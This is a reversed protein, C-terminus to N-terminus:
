NFLGAIPPRGGLLEVGWAGLTGAAGGTLPAAVWKAASKEDTASGLLAGGVGAVLAVVRGVNKGRVQVNFTMGPILLAGAAAALMQGGQQLQEKPAKKLARNEEKIKRAQAQTINAM